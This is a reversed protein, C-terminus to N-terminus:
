RRRVKITTHAAGRRGAKQVYVSMTYYAPLELAALNFYADGLQNTEKEKLRLTSM